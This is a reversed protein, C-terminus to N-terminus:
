SNRHHATQSEKFFFARFKYLFLFTAICSALAAWPFNENGSVGFSDIAFDSASLSSCYSTAVVISNNLAHAFVPIWISRTWLLLYGFMAGMLVRPVFGFFQFHIASFIIAASWVSLATGIKSEIFIKQLSGRFFLEESFGTLVGVVLITIMLSGIDSCQLMRSAIEGNAEEWQRLKTEIGNLSGPFHLNANWDILQNMAPLVLIYLIVVGSFPRWSPIKGISLWRCPSSSAYRAVVFSPLCFALLCQASSAILLSSRSSVSGGSTIVGAIAASLGLCICFTAFLVMLRMGTNERLAQKFEQNTM